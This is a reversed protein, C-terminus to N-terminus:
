AKPLLQGPCKGLISTMVKMEALTVWLKYKIKVAIQRAIYQCRFLKNSPLWTAADGDSKQLNANGDVALLELPDNALKVRESYSLLQAGKQWADSLAVVHDIQIKSSSSAGRKFNITAGTYPDALVGRIVNCKDDVTVNILDRNLIINRYDCGGVKLWGSGFKDRSYDTKPARGKVTLLGLASSALDTKNYVASSQKNVEDIKIESYNSAVIIIFVFLSLMMILTRRIKYTRDMASNHVVM